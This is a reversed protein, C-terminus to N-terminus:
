RLDFPTVSIKQAGRIQLEQEADSPLRINGGRIEYHSLAARVNGKRIVMVIGRPKYSNLSVNGKAYLATRTKRILPVRRAEAGYHPGGDFPDVQYLYSFGNKELMRLAHGVEREPVHLDRMANESLFCCYVKEKPFLSLIFEKNSASLHDATRYSLGTFKQGM